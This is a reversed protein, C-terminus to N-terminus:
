LQRRKRRKRRRQRSGRESYRNTNRQSLISGRLERLSKPVNAPTREQLVFDFAETETGVAALKLPLWSLASEFAPRAIESIVTTKSLKGGPNNSHWRHILTRLVSKVVGFIKVDLLKSEEEATFIGSPYLGKKFAALAERRQPDRAKRSQNGGQKKPRRLVKM